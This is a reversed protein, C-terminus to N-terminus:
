GEPSTPVFIQGHRNVIRAPLLAPERGLRELAALATPAGSFDSAAKFRLAPSNITISEGNPALYSVVGLLPNERPGRSIMGEITQRVTIVDDVWNRMPKGTVHEHFEYSDGVSEVTWGPWLGDFAGIQQDDDGTAWWRATKAPFDLHIGTLPPEARHQSDWRLPEGATSRALVEEAVSRILDPGFEAIVNLSGEGRWAIVQGSDLRVSLADSAEDVAWPAFWVLDEVTRQSYSEDTFITAPDAGALWLIGRVGEPSWVASWDPWTQEILHNVIRPLCLYESEEAWVVRRQALDILLSGEIWTAGHWEAPTDVGVPTMSRVRALTADFGDVAIDIGLTQAAWHDYYLEPGSEALVIVGLRSGM